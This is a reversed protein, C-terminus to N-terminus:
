KEFESPLLLKDEMKQLSIIFEIGTLPIVFQPPKGNNKWKWPVIKLNSVIRFKWYQWHGEVWCFWEGILTKDGNLIM